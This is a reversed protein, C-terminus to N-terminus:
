FQSYGGGGGYFSNFFAQQSQLKAMTEQLKTFEDFYQKEKKDLLVNMYSIRDNLNSVQRDIQKKSSDIIGGTEVFNTIYDEIQVAIGESSRFLDAVNQPNAELASEFKSSDTISLKGESDAEIGIDYLITYESNSTTTVESSIISRLDSTIGRYTIDTSLPGREHTDPDVKTKARLYDIVENYLSIFEEVDSKIAEKDTAITITEEQTFTNYLKLTVGDLAEEVTNSDRYFTLGDMYFKSKLESTVASTGVPTIYGGSTDTAATTANIGLADLLTSSGFDMRYTYGTQESSFSLRSTSSQEHMVSANVVEDSDITEDIVAQAMADNVAEAIAALVNDNTDNFVSASVTVEIQVRNDPDDDTPHAVEIYFTEDSTFSTFSSDSNLYQNSVRTDAKALREVTVTHNGTVASSSTTVDIKDPDSSIGNKALFPNFIEDTLYDLKTRLASLKSDLTSFISKRANLSDRKEILEDRPRQEIKMYQDILDYISYSSGSISSSYM